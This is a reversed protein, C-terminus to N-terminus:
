RYFDPMLAEPLECVADLYGRWGKDYMKKLVAHYEALIEDQKDIALGRQKANRWKSALTCIQHEWENLEPDVAYGFEDVDHAMM